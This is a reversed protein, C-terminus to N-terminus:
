RASSPPALTRRRRALLWVASRFRAWRSETCVIHSLIEAAMADAVAEQRDEAAEPLTLAIPPHGAEALSRILQDNTVLQSQARFRPQPRHVAPHVTIAPRELYVLHDIPLGGRFSPIFKTAGEIVITHPRLRLLRRFAAVPLDPAIKGADRFNLGPLPVADALALGLSEVLAARADPDAIELPVEPRFYRRNDLLTSGARAMVTKTFDPFCVFQVPAVLDFYGFTLPSANALQIADHGVEPGTLAPDRWAQREPMEALLGAAYPKFATTPYGRRNLVRVLAAAVTTKGVETGSGTVWIIRPPPRRFRHLIAM